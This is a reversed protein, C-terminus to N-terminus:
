IGIKPLISSGPKIEDTARTLLIDGEQLNGFIEMKDGLNIGNRVDVWEAKGDKVRVVFRKELNTDVASAPDLFSLNKRGM